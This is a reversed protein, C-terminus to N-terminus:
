LYRFKGIEILTSRIHRLWLSCLINIVLVFQNIEQHLTQLTFWAGRLYNERLHDHILHQMLSFLTPQEPETTTKFILKEIDSFCAQSLGDAIGDTISSYKRSFVPSESLEIVSRCQHGSACLADLLNFLADARYPFYHYLEERFKRLKETQDLM